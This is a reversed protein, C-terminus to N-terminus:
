RSVGAGTLVFIFGNESIPSGPDVYQDEGSSPCVGAPVVTLLGFPIGVPPGFIM